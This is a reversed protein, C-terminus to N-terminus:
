HPYHQFDQHNVLQTHRHHHHHFSLPTICRQGIRMTTQATWMLTPALFNDANDVFWVPPWVPESYSLFWVLKALYNYDDFEAIGYNTRINQDAGQAM